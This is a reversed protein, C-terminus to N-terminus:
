SAATSGHSFIVRPKAETTVLQWATPYAPLGHPRILQGSSSDVLVRGDTLDIFCELPRFDGTFGAAVFYSSTGVVALWNERRGTEDYGWLDATTPLLLTYQTGFSVVTMRHKFLRRGKLVAPIQPGLPFIFKEVDGHDSYEAAFGVCKDDGYEFLFLEAPKVEEFRCVKVSPLTNLDGEQDDSM